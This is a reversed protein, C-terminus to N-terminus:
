ALTSVDQVRTKSDPDFLGSGAVSRNDDDHSAIPATAVEAGQNLALDGPIPTRFGYVRAMRVPAVQPIIYYVLLGVVIMVFAGAYIPTIPNHFMY